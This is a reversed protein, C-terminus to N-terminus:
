WLSALTTWWESRLSLSFFSCSFFFFIQSKRKLACEGFVIALKDNTRLSAGAASFACWETHASTISLTFLPPPWIPNTLLGRQGTTIEILWWWWWCCASSCRFCCVCLTRMGRSYCRNVSIFVSCSLVRKDEEVETDQGGCRRWVTMMRMKLKKKKEKKQGTRGKDIIAIVYDSQDHRERKRKSSPPPPASKWALTTTTTYQQQWSWSCSQSWHYIGTHNAM